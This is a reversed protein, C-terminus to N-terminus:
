IIYLLQAGITTQSSHSNASTAGYPYVDDDNSKDMRLEARAIMNESLKYEATFTQEFNRDSAFATRFAADDVFVEGRYALAFKDTFQYRVYGAFGWWDADNTPGGAGLADIDHQAGYDIDAALSLKETVDYSLVNTILWRKGDNTGASEAGWYFAHFASLGEIPLDYGVATEITKFSNNDIAVDWGNNIGFYVDLKDNFLGFNSRIGTHIFPIALGFMYSRSINWNNYGEIVELGALTAFRGATFKIQDPLVNSGEFFKLPAIYEVFAEQLDINDGAFGDAVIVGSDEGFALNIRFGTEGAEEARNEFWLEAANVTFSGDNNDFIRGTNTPGAGTTQPQRFNNNWQIDLHGGMDINQAAKVLGGTEGSPMAVVSRASAQDFRGELNMVKKNLSDVLSKLAEVEPDAYSTGIFTLTMVLVLGLGKSLITKM